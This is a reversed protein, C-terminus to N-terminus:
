PGEDVFILVKDIKVQGDSFSTTVWGVYDTKATGGILIVNLANSAYDQSQIMSSSVDNGARDKVAMSASSITLGDSALDSLDIGVTIVDGPYKYLISPQIM